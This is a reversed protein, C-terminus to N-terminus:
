GGEGEPQLDHTRSYVHTGAGNDDLGRVPSPPRVHGLVERFVHDQGMETLVVGQRPEDPNRWAAWGRRIFEDQVERFRPVIRGLRGESFPVSAYLRSALYIFDRSDLLLDGSQTRLEILKGAAEGVPTMNGAPAPLLGKPKVPEPLAIATIVEAGRLRDAAAPVLYNVISFLLWGGLAILLYQIVLPIWAVYPALNARLAAQQEEAARVRAIEAQTAFMAPEAQKTATGRASATETAHADEAAATGQIAIWARETATVAAATATGDRAQATGIANQQDAQATGAIQAEVVSLTGRLDPAATIVVPSQVAQM